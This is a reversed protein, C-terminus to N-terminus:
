RQRAEAIADVIAQRRLDALDPLDNTGDRQARYVEPDMLTIPAADVTDDVVAARYCWSPTWIEMGWVGASSRTGQMFEAHDKDAPIALLPAQPDDPPFVGFFLIEEDGVREWAVGFCLKAPWPQEGPPLPLEDPLLIRVLPVRATAVGDEGQTYIEAIGAWSMVDGMAAFSSAGLSDRTQKPDDMM